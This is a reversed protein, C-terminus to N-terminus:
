LYDAFEELAQDIPIAFGIGETGKLIMTNIGLVSGAEDVLPGGSNGPNIAADTQIYRSEGKERYGSLIGSTVTHRLGSPNGIAFVKSGLRIDGVAATRLSPCGSGRVRLLALDYTESIEVVDADYVSGDVLTIELNAYYEADGALLVEIQDLRNQANQLAMARIAIQQPLNDEDLPVGIRRYHDVTQQLDDKMKEILKALEEKEYTLKERDDGMLRIVHRNSLVHCDSDIFFGSGIGINSKIYVTANRAKEIPSNAPSSSELLQALHGAADDTLANHTADDFEGEEDILAQEMNPARTGDPRSTTFFFVAAAIALITAGAMAIILHRSTGNSHPAAEHIPAPSPDQTQEKRKQLRQNFKEFIIGCAVCEEGSQQEHGCKPCKM